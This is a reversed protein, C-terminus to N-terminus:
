KRGAITKSFTETRIADCLFFEVMGREEAGKFSLTSDDGIYVDTQSDLCQFHIM